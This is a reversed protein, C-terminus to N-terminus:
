QSPDGWGLRLRCMASHQGSCLQTRNMLCVIRDRSPMPGMSLHPEARSEEARGREDRRQEARAPHPRVWDEPPGAEVEEPDDIQKPPNVPPEMTEACCLFRYPHAIPRQRLQGDTHRAQACSAARRIPLAIPSSVGHVMLSLAIPCEM